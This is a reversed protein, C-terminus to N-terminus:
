IIRVMRKKKKTIAHNGKKVMELIQKNQSFRGPLSTHQALSICSLMENRSKKIDVTKRKLVERTEAVYTKLNRM